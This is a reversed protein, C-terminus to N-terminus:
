YFILSDDRKVLHVRQSPVSVFNQPGCIRAVGLSPHTIFRRNRKDKHVNVESVTGVSGNRGFTNQCLV